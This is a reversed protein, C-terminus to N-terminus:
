YEYAIPNTYKGIGYKIKVLKLTSIQQMPGTQTKINNWQLGM